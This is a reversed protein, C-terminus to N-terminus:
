SAAVPDSDFRPHRGLLRIQLLPLERSGPLTEKSATRDLPDANLNL